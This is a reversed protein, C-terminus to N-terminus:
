FSLLDCCCSHDSLQGFDADGAEHLFVRSLSSLGSGLGVGCCIDLDVVHDRRARDVVCLAVRHLQLEELLVALHVFTDALEVAANGKVSLVERVLLIKAETEHKCVRLGAFIVAKLHQGAYMVLELSFLERVQVDRLRGSRIDESLTAILEGVGVVLVVPDDEVVFAEHVALVNATTLETDGKDTVEVRQVLLVVDSEDVTLLLLIGERAEITGLAEGATIDRM